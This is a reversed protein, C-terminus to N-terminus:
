PLATHSSAPRHVKAMAAKLVRVKDPPNSQRAFSLATQGKNDKATLDAGHDLLLKVIGVGGFGGAANMLPTTGDKSRANVDAGKELLAKVVDYASNMTALACECAALILATNGYKDTAQFNAGRRLLLQVIETQAHGAAFILPTGRDEDRAEIQAGHDLLLKVTTLYPSDPVVAQENSKQANPEVIQIVVPGGEAAAFLAQNKERTSAGKQLLIKVIEVSGSGAARTLATQGQKNKARVSAGHDLLVQVMALDYSEAANTLSTDANEDRAEINAGQQLLQLVSPIDRNRVAQLLQHDLSGSQDAQRASALASVWIIM